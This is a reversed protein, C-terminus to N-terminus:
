DFSFVVLPSSLFPFSIRVHSAGLNLPGHISPADPALAQTTDESLQEPQGACCVCASCQYRGGGDLQASHHKKSISPMLKTACRALLLTSYTNNRPHLPFIYNSFGIRSGSRSILIQYATTAEPGSVLSATCDPGMNDVFKPPIKTAYLISLLHIDPFPGHKLSAPHMELRPDCIRVVAEGVVIGVRRNKLYHPYLSSGEANKDPSFCVRTGVLYKAHRGPFAQMNPRISTIPNRLLTPRRIGPIGRIKMDVTIGHPMNHWSTCVAKTNTMTRYIPTGGLGKSM